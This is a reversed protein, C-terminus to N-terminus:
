PCSGAPGSGALTRVPDPTEHDPAASHPGDGLRLLFLLVAVPLGVRFLGAMTVAEPEFFAETAVGSSIARQVSYFLVTAALLLVYGLFSLVRTERPAHRSGHNTLSEGSMTIDWAMAVLVIAAAWVSVRSAKLAHEYVVSMGELAWVTATLGVIAVLLRRRFDPRARLGAIVALAGFVGVGLLLGDQSLYPWHASEGGLVRGVADGFFLLTAVAFLGLLFVTAAARAGWRRGNALYAILLAVLIAVYGAISYTIIRDSRRREETASKKEEPPPLTAAPQGAARFSHAIAELEPRVSEEPIGRVFAEMLYSTNFARTAPQVWLTGHMGDATLDIASWPGDRRATAPDSGKIGTLEQPDTVSLRGTFVAVRIMPTTPSGPRAGPLAYDTWRELGDAAARPHIWGRPVLLTYASDGSGGHESLVDASATFYGADTVQEPRQAVHHFSGALLGSLPSLLYPGLAAVAFISAFNLTAPWRRRHVQLLRGAGVVVVLAAGSLLLSQGAKVLRTGAAIGGTDTLDAYGFAALAACSVLAFAPLAVRSRRLGTAIREGTIGGWEGFDVAAVLLVPYVLLVIDTMLLSVVQPFLNLGGVEPTARALLAFYGGFIVAYAALIALWLKREGAAKRSRRRAILRAAAAILWLSLLLGRSAWQAWGPLMDLFGSAGVLRGFSGTEVGIAATLLVLGGLAVPWRALTVGALLYAFGLSLLVLTTLFLPLSLDVVVGGSRGVDVTPAKVDRLAILLVVALLSALAGGTALRLPRDMTALSIRREQFTERLSNIEHHPGAPHVDDAPNGEAGGGPGSESPPTM